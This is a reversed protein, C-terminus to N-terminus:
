PPKGGYHSQVGGVARGSSKPEGKGSRASYASGGGRLSPMPRDIAQTHTLIRLTSKSASALL